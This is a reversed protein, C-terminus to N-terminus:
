KIVGSPVFDSGLPLFTKAMYRYSIAEPNINKHSGRLIGIGGSRIIGKRRDKEFERLAPKHNEEPAAIILPQCQEGIDSHGLIIYAEDSMSKMKTYAKTYSYRLATGPLPANPMVHEMTKVMLKRVVLNLVILIVGLPLLCIDLIFATLEKPSFSGIGSSVAFLIFLSLSYIGYIVVILFLPTLLFLTIYNFFINCFFSGAFALLPLVTTFQLGLGLSAISLAFGIIILVLNLFHLGSIANIRTRFWILDNYETPNAEAPIDVQVVDPTPM